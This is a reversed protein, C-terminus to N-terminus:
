GDGKGEEAALRRALALAAARDRVEGAAQAERVAELLRGIAPGPRMELERMVDNGDILRAPRAVHEEGYLIGLLWAFYAVHRQWERLTLLPGRVAAHDALHLLLLDPLDDDLDRAFKYLARRTPAEGPAALMGPRLHDSILKEIYGIERASFRLGRALAAARRAGVEGHGFFRMRGTAPEFTRTEPKAVEHLLAILKLTARLPREDAVLGDLKARLDPVLAFLPQVAEWLARQEASQPPAACLILDMAGLAHLNHEFVDFYHEPPQVFGRGADLDPLLVSLLGLDDLLRVGYEANDLALIRGFEDRRREAATVGLRAAAARGAAITAADIQFDLQAAFRAARLPRIADDAFASPGAMRIVGAALDDVGGTPDVIRGGDTGLVVAIANMTFDRLRLDAELTAARLRTLDLTEIGDFPERLVIRFTGREVDLPVVAGRLARALLRASQEADGEVAFDLDHNPRGILADRVFGGVIALPAPASALAALVPAALRALVRQVSAGTVSPEDSM